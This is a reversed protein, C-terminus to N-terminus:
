TGGSPVYPLDRCGYSHWRVTDCMKYCYILHKKKGETATLAINQFSQIICFPQLVPKDCQKHMLMLYSYEHNM